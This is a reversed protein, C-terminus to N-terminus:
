MMGREREGETERTDGERETYVSWVAVCQLVSYCAAVCQTMVCMPGHTTQFFSDRCISTGRQLVSCCVAICLLVCCCVAVCQLVCCCVAVCQTMVCMPGHSMVDDRERERERERDGERRGRERYSDCWVCVCIHSDYKM